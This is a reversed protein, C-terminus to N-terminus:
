LDDNGIEGHGVRFQNSGFVVTIYLKRIIYLGLLLEAMGDILRARVPIFTDTIWIPLVASKM